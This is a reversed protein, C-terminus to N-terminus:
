VWTGIMFMIRFFQTQDNKLSNYSDLPFEIQLLHRWCDKEQLYNINLLRASTASLYRNSLKKLSNVLGVRSKDSFVLFITVFTVSPPPVGGKISLGSEPSTVLIKPSVM